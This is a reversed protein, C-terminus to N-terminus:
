SRVTPVGIIRPMLPLIRHAAATAAMISTAMANWGTEAAGRGALAGTGPLEQRTKGESLTQFMSTDFSGTAFFFLTQFVDICAPEVSSCGSKPGGAYPM